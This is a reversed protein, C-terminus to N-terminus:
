IFLQYPPFPPNLENNICAPKVPANNAPMALGWVCCACHHSALSFSFISNKKKEGQRISATKAPINQRPYKLENKSLPM